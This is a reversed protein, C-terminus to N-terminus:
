KTPLRALFDRPAFTPLAAGVYDALNRTVVVDLGSAVAVAVQVADEYDRLPSAEALLLTAQDLPCVQLGALLERVAQRAVILGKFKRVIYFVNVTTVPSIAATFRGEENAVWLAAAETVFPTRVLILDLVVDTDLLARM